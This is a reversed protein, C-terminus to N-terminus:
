DDLVFDFRAASTQGTAAPTFQLTQGRDRAAAWDASVGPESTANPFYLQTVLAERLGRLVRAHIHAPRSSYAKPIVTRFRYEGRADSISAGFGQFGPDRSATARDGSHIYRGNDDTQWIEIRVGPLPKGQRNLVRGSLEIITGRAVGSHGDIRTLDADQDAPLRDPYFPGRMDRPTPELAQAYGPSALTIFVLSGLLRALIAGSTRTPM